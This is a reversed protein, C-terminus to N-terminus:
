FLKDVKDPQPHLCGNRIDHGILGIADEPTKVTLGADKIRNFVQRLIVMHDSWSSTHILVDDIYSDVCPIGDLLKRMMRCYTAGANVLGFPMRRFQFLGRSTSFATKEKDEPSM